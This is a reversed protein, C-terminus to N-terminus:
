RMWIYTLLLTLFVLEVLFARRIFSKEFLRAEGQPDITRM